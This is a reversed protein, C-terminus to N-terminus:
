LTAMSSLTLSAYCVMAEFKLHVLRYSALSTYGFANSCRQLGFLSLYSKRNQEHGDNYQVPEHSVFLWRGGGKGGPKAIPPQPGIEADSRSGATKSGKKSGELFVSVRGACSSTTVLGEIANIKGVLDRIGEDLSGKPSFDSYEEDPLDLQHLIEKKKSKFVESNMIATHQSSPPKINSSHSYILMPAVWCGSIEVRRLAGRSTM